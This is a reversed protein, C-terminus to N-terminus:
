RIFTTTKTEADSGRYENNTYNCKPSIKLIPINSDLVLLLDQLMQNTNDVSSVIRSTSM